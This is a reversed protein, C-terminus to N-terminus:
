SGMFRFAIVVHVISFVILAVSTVSHFLVWGRLRLQLAFQYDLDDRQRVLAALKGATRRADEEFYRDLQKLNSLIQRRHHGSPVVLYALKPYSNFFPALTSEYFGLLVPAAAGSGKGSVLETASKAIQERTWRIRDFRHQNGVNALRRPFTRSVYLGYFGSGSVLLFMVSLCGEFLGDGIVSPVHHLYAASAFIGIHIHIQTWLSMSGLPLFTIRRRLGILVLLMLCALLTSGTLVAVRGLSDTQRQVLVSFGVVAFVTFSLALNRRTRLHMRGM